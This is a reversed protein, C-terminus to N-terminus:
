PAFAEGQNFDRVVERQVGRVWGPAQADAEHGARRREGGPAAEPLQRELLANLDAMLGPFLGHFKVQLWAVAPM